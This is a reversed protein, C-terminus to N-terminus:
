HEELFPKESKPIAAVCGSRKTISMHFNYMYIFIGENGRISEPTTPFIGKLINLREFEDCRVWLTM